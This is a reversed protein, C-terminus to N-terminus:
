EVSSHRKPKINTWYQINITYAHFCNRKQKYRSFIFNASDKESQMKGYLYMFIGLSTMTIFGLIVAWIQM